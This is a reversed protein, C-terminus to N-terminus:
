ENHVPMVVTFMTICWNINEPRVPGGSHHRSNVRIRGGHAVAIKKAEYLGRRHGSRDRFKGKHEVNTYPVFIRDIESDLIGLGFNEISIHVEVDNALEAKVGIWRLWGDQAQRSYKIANNLLHGLMIRFWFRDVFIRLSPEVTVRFDIVRREAYAQQDDIAAELLTEANVWEFKMAEADYLIPYETEIVHDSFTTLDQM